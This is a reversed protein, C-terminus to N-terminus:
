TTCIMVVQSDATEPSHSTSYKVVNFRFEQLPTLSDCFNNTVICMECPIIFVLFVLYPAAISTTYSHVCTCDLQSCLYLGLRNYLCLNIRFRAQLKLYETAGNLEESNIM